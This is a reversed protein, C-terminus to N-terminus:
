QMKERGMIRIRRVGEMEEIKRIMQSINDTNDKIQLSISLDAVGSIPCFSQLFEQRM